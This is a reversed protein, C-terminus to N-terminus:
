AAAFQRTHHELFELVERALRALGAVGLRNPGSGDVHCRDLTITGGDIMLEGILVFYGAEAEFRAMFYEHRDIEFDVLKFM